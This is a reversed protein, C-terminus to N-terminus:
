QDGSPLQMLYVNPESKKAQLLVNFFSRADADPGARALAKKWPVAKLKTPKRFKSSSSAAKKTKPPTVSVTAKARNRARKARDSNIDITKTIWSALAEESYIDKNSGTM